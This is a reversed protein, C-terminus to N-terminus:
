ERVEVFQQDRRRQRRRYIKSKLKNDDDDGGGASKGHFWEATLGGFVMTLLIAAVNVQDNNLVNWNWRTVVRRSSPSAANAIAGTKTTGSYQLTAGLLSDILSGLVGACTSQALVGFAARLDCPHRWKERMYDNVNDASFMASFMRVLVHALGISAGGAASAATGLLSIGGNTGRPVVLWPATILRPLSRSLVGLESAWTDGAACAYGSLHAATLVRAWFSQSSGRQESQQKSQQESQQERQCYGYDHGGGGVVLIYVAAVITQFGGNCLVQAATRKGGKRLAEGEISRKAREGVRTALSSLFFFGYLHASLHHAAWGTVPGVLWSAAIGGRSLSGKRLAFLTALLPPGLAAVASM